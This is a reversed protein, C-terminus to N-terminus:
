QVSYTGVHVVAQLIVRLLRNHCGPLLDVLLRLRVRLGKLSPIASIM